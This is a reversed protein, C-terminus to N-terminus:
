RESEEEKLCAIFDPTVLVDTIEKITSQLVEVRHKRKMGREDKAVSM